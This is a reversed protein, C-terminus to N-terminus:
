DGETTSVGAPSGKPAGSAEGTSVTLDSVERADPGDPGATHRERRGTRMTEEHDAVGWREGLPQADNAIRGKQNQQHIDRQM